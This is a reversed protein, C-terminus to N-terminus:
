EEGSTEGLGGGSVPSVRRASGGPTPVVGPGYTEFGGGEASADAAEMKALLANYNNVTVSVPPAVAGSKVGAVRDHISLLDKVPLADIHTQDTLTDLRGMIRGAIRSTVTARLETVRDRFHRQAWYRQVTAPAVGAYDAAEEFTAGAALQVAAMEQHAILAAHEPRNGAALLADYLEDEPALLEAPLQALNREVARRHSGTGREEIEATARPRTDLASGEVRYFDGQAPHPHGHARRSRREVVPEIVAEPAYASAVPDDPPKQKNASGRM